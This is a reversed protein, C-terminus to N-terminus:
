TPDGPPLTFHFTSGKGPETDVDITGGHAEVISKCIFLGLGTGKLEAKRKGALKSYKEFLFAKEEQSLGPGTDCVEFRVGKKAPLTRVTVSGGSPTFKIANTCLNILVQEVKENDLLMGPFPDASIEADLTIGKEGALFKTEDVARRVMAKPDGLGKHLTLRGAEIRSMDLVENVLSMLRKSSSQLIEVVQEQDETLDGAMGGKLIDSGALIGALPSRLDHVIMSMFDAKVAEMEDRAALFTLISGLEREIVALTRREESGFADAETHCMMLVGPIEDGVTVPLVIESEFVPFVKSKKNGGRLSWSVAEQEIEADHQQVAKWVVERAGSHGVAPGLDLHLSVSRPSRVLLAGLKFAFVEHLFEFLSASLAPPDQSLRALDRIRNAITAAFLLEELISGLRSKAATETISSSAPPPGSSPEANRAAEELVEKVTDVIVGMSEDKVLYRDAGAQRGWFKDQQQSLSTLLIVPITSTRPDNKLIRCFQYGSLEPMMVDSVIADPTSEYVRNLGEVGNEATVVEYGAEKLSASVFDRQFPSDDVVLLHALPPNEPM